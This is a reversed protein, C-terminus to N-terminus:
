AVVGATEGTKVRLADVAAIAIRYEELEPTSTYPLQVVEHEWTFDGDEHAAEGRSIVVLGPLAPHVSGLSVVALAYVPGEGNPVSSMSVLTASAPGNLDFM